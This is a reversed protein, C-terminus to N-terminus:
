GSLAGPHHDVVQPHGSLTLPLSRNRGVLHYSLDAVEAPLRHGVPRVHGVPVLGRGHDSSGDVGPASEVGQHTVRAEQAVPHQGGHTLIVPVRHDANVELAVERWSTVGNGM